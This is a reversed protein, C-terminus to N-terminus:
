TPSGSRHDSMMGPQRSSASTSAPGGDPDAAAEKPVSNEPNGTPDAQAEGNPAATGAGGTRGTAASPDSDNLPASKPPSAQSITEGPTLSTEEAPPPSEGGGAEAM